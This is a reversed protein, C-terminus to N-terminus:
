ETLEETEYWQFIQSLGGLLARAVQGTVVEVASERTNPVRTYNSSPTNIINPPLVVGHLSYGHIYGGNEEIWKLLNKKKTKVNQKNGGAAIIDVLYFWSRKGRFSSCLRWPIHARAVSVSWRM